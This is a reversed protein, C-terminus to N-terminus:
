LISLLLMGTREWKALLFMLSTEWQDMKQLASTLSSQMTTRNTFCAYLYYFGCNYTLASSKAIVQCVEDM